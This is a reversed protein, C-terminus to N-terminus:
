RCSRFRLLSLVSFSLIISLSCLFLSICLSLNGTSPQRKSKREAILNLVVLQVGLNLKMDVMHQKSLLALKDVSDIGNSKLIRAAADNIGLRKMVEDFSESVCSLWFCVDVVCMCHACVISFESTRLAYVQKTRWISALSSLELSLSVFACLSFVCMCSM